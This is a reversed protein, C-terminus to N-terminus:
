MELMASELLYLLPLASLSLSCAFLKMEWKVIQVSDSVDEDDEGKEKRSRLRKRRTEKERGRKGKIARHMRAILTMMARDVM